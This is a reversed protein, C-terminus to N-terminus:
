FSYNVALIMNRGAASIGSSYTRYRQDTINELSATVQLNDSIEYKGTLNISYWSPSYPNGNQDIAYLYAKGQESPALDGFDFQGNYEGFLDITLKEDKWVLHANGFLPAAHRLPALNGDDQEEKGQTITVQSTLSLNPYGHAEM